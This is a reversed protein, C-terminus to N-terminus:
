TSMDLYGFTGIVIIQIYVNQKKQGHDHTLSWEYETKLRQWLLDSYPLIYLCKPLVTSFVAIQALLSGLMKQPKGEVLFKLLDITPM